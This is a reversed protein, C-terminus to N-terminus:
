LFLGKKPFLKSKRVMEGWSFRKNEKASLVGGLQWIPVAWDMSQLGEHKETWPIRWALVSSHTTM